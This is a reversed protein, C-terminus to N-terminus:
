LRVKGMGGFQGPNQVYFGQQGVTEQRPVQQRTASGQNVVPHSSPQPLGEPPSAYYERVYHADRWNDLGHSHSISSHTYTGRPYQGTLFRYDYYYPLYGFAPRPESGYSTAASLAPPQPRTGQEETERKYNGYYVSADESVLEGGQFENAPASIEPSVRLYQSGHSPLRGYM